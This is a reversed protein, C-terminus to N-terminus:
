LVTVKSSDLAPISILHPVECQVGETAFHKCHAQVKLPACTCSVDLDVIEANRLPPLPQVEDLEPSASVYGIQM